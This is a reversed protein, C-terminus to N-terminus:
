RQCEKLLECFTTTDINKALDDDDKFHDKSTLVHQLCRNCQDWYGYLQNQNAGDSQKPFARYVLAVADQFAKQSEELALFSRFQSQVMRHCSFTRPDKDRKVMALKLLPEVANSFSRKSTLSPHGM